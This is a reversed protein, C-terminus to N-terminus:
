GRQRACLAILYNLRIQRDILIIQMNTLTTQMYIMMIQMDILPYPWQGGDGHKNVYFTM